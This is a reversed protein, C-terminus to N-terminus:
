VNVPVRATQTGAKITLAGTGDKVPLVFGGKGVAAVAGEARFDCLPTLDRVSGDAYRGTVVLQQTSRPGTLTLSPPEVALASPQGVLAARQAPDTPLGGRALAPLLLCLGGGFLASRALTSRMASRTVNRM